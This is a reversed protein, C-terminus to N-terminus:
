GSRTNARHTTQMAVLRAIVSAIFLQAIVAEVAAINRAVPAVPSVDGYGVTTLTMLSFYHLIGAERWGGEVLQGALADSVAFSEPDLYAVLLFVRAFFLGILLYVASAGFVTDATIRERTFVDLLIGVSTLGLFAMSSVDVLIPVIPAETMPEIAECALFALGLAGVWILLGRSRWVARLSALLLLFTVLSLRWPVEHSPSLLPEFVFLVITATLIAAYRGALERILAHTM